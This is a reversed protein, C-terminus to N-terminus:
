AAAEVPMTPRNKAAAHINALLELTIDHRSIERASVVLQPWYEPPISGRRKMESATSYGVGLCRAVNAVAGPKKAADGEGPPSFADFIYAVTNM